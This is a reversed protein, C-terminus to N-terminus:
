PAEGPKEAPLRQGLYKEPASSARAGSQLWAHVAAPERRELEELCAERLSVVRLLTGPGAAGRLDWFSERWLRCLQREDLGRLPGM